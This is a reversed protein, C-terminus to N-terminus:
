FQSFEILIICNIPVFSSTIGILQNLQNLELLINPIYIDILNSKIKIKNECNQSLDIKM